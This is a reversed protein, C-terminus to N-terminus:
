PKDQVTYTYEGRKGRAYISESVETDDSIGPGSAKIEKGLSRILALIMKMEESM